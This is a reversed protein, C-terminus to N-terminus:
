HIIHKYAKLYSSQWRLNHADENDQNNEQWTCSPKRPSMTTEKDQKPVKNDGQRAQPSQQRQMYEINGSELM